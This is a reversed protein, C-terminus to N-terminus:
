TVAQPFAVIEASQIKLGSVSSMDKACRMADSMHWFSRVFERGFYVARYQRGSESAHRLKISIVAM